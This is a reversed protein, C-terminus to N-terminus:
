DGFSNLWIQCRGWNKKKFKWFKFPFESLYFCCCFFHLFLLQLQRQLLLLLFKQPCTNRFLSRPRWKSKGCNLRWTTVRSSKWISVWWKAGGWGGGRAGGRKRSEEALHPPTPRRKIRWTVVALFGSFIGWGILFDGSFGLCGIFSRRM